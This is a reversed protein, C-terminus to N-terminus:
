IEITNNEKDAIKNIGNLTVTFKNSIIIQYLKKFIEYIYSLKLRGGILYEGNEIGTESATLKTKSDIYRKQYHGKKNYYDIEHEAMNRLDLIDKKNSLETYIENTEEIYENLIGLWDIANKMSIKLYHDDGIRSMNYKWKDDEKDENEINICEQNIREVQKLVCFSWIEVKQRAIIFEDM